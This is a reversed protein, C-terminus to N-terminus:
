CNIHSNEKGDSGNKTSALPLDLTFITGRHDRYPGSIDADYDNLIIKSILLAQGRGESDPDSVTGIYLEKKLYDPMDPGPNIINLLLRGHTVTGEITIKEGAPTFRLANKVLQNFIWILSVKNLNIAPLQDVDVTVNKRMLDDSCERVVTECVDNPNLREVIHRPPLKPIVKAIAETDQYIQELTPRDAPDIKSRLLDVLTKIGLTKGPVEHAWISALQGLRASATGVEMKKRLRQLQRASQIALAAHRAFLEMVSVEQETFEHHTLYNIFMLGVLREDVLLPFVAASIIHERNTFRGRLKECRNIDPALHRNKLGTCRFVISNQDFPPNSLAPEKLEGAYVADGIFTERDADYEYILAKDAAIFADKNVADDAIKQLVVEGELEKNLDESLAMLSRASKYLEANKIAPVVQNAFATAKDLHAPTYFFPENSEISLMGIAKDKFSLPIGMWCRIHSSCYFKEKWFHDYKTARVDDILLPSSTKIVEYNPFKPILPFKLKLVKQKEIENNWACAVVRLADGTILQISATDFPILPRLEALVRDLVEKYDVISSHVVQSVKQLAKTFQFHEANQIATVAFNALTQLVLEDEKSFGNKRDVKGNQDKKNELKLLGIIEEKGAVKRKLPAALLSVCYGSPIHPHPGRKKIAPHSDLEESRRNFVEGSRAILGSLGAEPGNIPLRLGIEATGDPSGKSSALSLFGPQTVVFIASVEANLLEFCSKNILDFIKESDFTATVTSGVENLRELVEKRSQELELSRGHEILACASDALMVASGISEGTFPNVDHTDGLLCVGQLSAGQRLPILLVSKLPQKLGVHNWIQELLDEGDCFVKHSSVRVAEEVNPLSLLSCLREIGPDWDFNKRASGARVRLNHGDRTLLMVLGFDAGSVERLKRCVIKLKDTLKAARTIEATFTRLRASQQMQRKAEEIRQLQDVQVAIATAVRSLIRDDRASFAGVTKSEVNIVGIVKGHVWLPVAIESRANTLAPIYRPELRTDPVIVTKRTLAASATVGKDAVLKVPLSGSEEPPFRTAVLRLENAVDDKLLLSCYDYHLHDEILELVKDKFQEEDLNCVLAEILKDATDLEELMAAKQLAFGAHKGFSELISQEAISFEKGPEIHHLALVGLIKENAIIPVGIAATLKLHDFARQRESWEYYHSKTYPERTKLVRGIVGRDTGVVTGEPIEPHGHSARVELEESTSKLLYIAGGSAELLNIAAALTKKLVDQVKVPDAIDLSASQLTELLAAYRKTQEHLRANEIAIAAQDALGRLMVTEDESTTTRVMRGMTIVGLPEGKSSNLPLFALSVLDSRVLVRRWDERDALDNIELIAEGQLIRQFDPPLDSLLRVLKQGLGVEAVVELRMREPDLLAITCTTLNFLGRLNEVIGVLITQLDLGTRLASFSEYVKSRTVESVLKRREAAHHINVVLDEKKFPKLLYLYAGGSTARVGDDLEGFGTIIITEIHPYLQKVEKMTEIGDRGKGLRLDMVIVDYNGSAETVNQLCQEGTEATVVDFNAERRLWEALWERADVQNDVLLVRITHNSM